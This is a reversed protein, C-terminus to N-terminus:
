SLRPPVFMVRVYGTKKKGKIINTWMKKRMDSWGHAASNKERVVVFSLFGCRKKDKCTVTVDRSTIHHPYHGCVGAIRRIWQWSLMETRKLDDILTSRFFLYVTCFPVLCHPTPLSSIAFHHWLAFTDWTCRSLEIKHFRNNKWRHTGSGHKRGVAVPNTVSHNICLKWLFWICWSFQEHVIGHILAHVRHWNTM